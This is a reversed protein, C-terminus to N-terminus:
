HLHVTSMKKMKLYSKLICFYTTLKEYSKIIFYYETFKVVAQGLFESLSSLGYESQPPTLTEQLFSSVRNRHTKLGLAYWASPKQTGHQSNRTM